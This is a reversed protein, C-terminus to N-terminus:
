EWFEIESFDDHPGPHTRRHVCKGNELHKADHIGNCPDYVYVVTDQKGDGDDDADGDKVRVVFEQCGDGDIDQWGVQNQGGVYPCEAVWGDPGNNVVYYYGFMPVPGDICVIVVYDGNPGPLIGIVWDNRGDGNWDGDKPTGRPPPCTIQNAMLASSEAAVLTLVCCCDTAASSLTSIWTPRGVPTGAVSAVIGASRDFAVLAIPTATTLVASALSVLNGSFHSHVSIGSAISWNTAVVRSLRTSLDILIWLDARGDSNNDLALGLTMNSITSPSTKAALRLAATGNARNYSTMAVLPEVECETAEVMSHQANIFGIQLLLVAIWVLGRITRQM